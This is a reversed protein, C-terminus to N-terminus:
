YPTLSAAHGSLVLPPLPPPPAGPLPPTEARINFAHSMALARLRANERRLAENQRVLDGTSARPLGAVSAPRWEGLASGREDPSAAPPAGGLVSAPRPGADDGGPAAAAPASAPGGRSAPATRASELAPRAPTAARSHGQLAAGPTAARPARGQAGASTSPRLGKKAGLRLAQLRLQVLRARQAEDGAAEDARGQAGGRDAGGRDGGGLPAPAARLLHAAKLSKEPRTVRAPLAASSANPEATSRQAALPTAARAALPEAAVAARAYARERLSLGTKPRMQSRMTLSSASLQSDEPALSTSRADDEVTSEMLSSKEHKGALVFSVDKSTGPRCKM